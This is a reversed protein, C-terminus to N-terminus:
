LKEEVVQRMVHRPAKVGTWVEFQNYAQGLFMELGLITQCFADIEGLELFDLHIDTLWTVRSM